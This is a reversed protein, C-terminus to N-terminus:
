SKIAGYFLFLLTASIAVSMYGDIKDRHPRVLCSLVLYVGSVILAILVRLLPHESPVLLVAGNLVLKRAM